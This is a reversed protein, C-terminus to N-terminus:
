TADKLVDYYNSGGEDTNTEIVTLGCSNSIRGYTEAGLGYSMQGTLIDMWECKQEPASFLFRGNPNLAAAIKRFLERQKKESLLFVLGVSIIGDFREGFFESTEVAECVVRVTPFNKRFAAVLTPSADIASLQCGVKLVAASVPLGHGSGVDLVAANKPLSEAWKEVVAKGSESRAAM